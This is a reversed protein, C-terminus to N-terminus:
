CYITRMEDFTEQNLRRIQEDNILQLKKEQGEGFTEFIERVKRIQMMMAQDIDIGRESFLYDHVEQLNTFSLDDQNIRILHMVVKIPTYFKIGRRWTEKQRSFIQNMIMKLQVVREESCFKSYDNTSQIANMVFAYIKSNSGKIAIKKSNIGSRYIMPEFKQIFITHEPLPEQDNIVYQGPLEIGKENFNALFASIEELNTQMQQLSLKKQLFDKFNKLREMLVM